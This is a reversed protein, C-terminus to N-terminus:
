LDNIQGAMGKFVRVDGREDARFGDVFKDTFGLLYFTVLGRTTWVEITTFDIAALVDWHAKIFTAWTTKKKREPAPEIGNEKLINGITTDSIQHGLNALAGQIRDYGWSARTKRRWGCSM